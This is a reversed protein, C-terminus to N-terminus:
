TGLGKEKDKDEVVAFLGDGALKVLAVAMVVLCNCAADMYLTDRQKMRWEEPLHEASMVTNANHMARVAREMRAASAIRFADELPIDGQDNDEKM